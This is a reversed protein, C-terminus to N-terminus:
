FSCEEEMKFLRDKSLHLHSSPQRYGGLQGHGRGGTGKDKEMSERNMDQKDNVSQFERRRFESITSSLGVNACLFGSFSSNNIM